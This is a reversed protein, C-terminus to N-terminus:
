NRMLKYDYDDKFEIKGRLDKLSKRNRNTMFDTLVKDSLINTKWHTSIKRKEKVATEM